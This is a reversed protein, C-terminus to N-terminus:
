FVGDAFWFTDVGGDAVIKLRGQVSTDPQIVVCGVGVLHVVNKSSIVSGIAESGSNLIATERTEDEASTDGSRITCRLMTVFVIHVARVVVVVNVKSIFAREQIILEEVEVGVLRLDRSGLEGGPFIEGNILKRVVNVLILDGGRFRLDFVDTVVETSLEGSGTVARGDDM